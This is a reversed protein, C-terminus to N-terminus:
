PFDIVYNKLYGRKILDAIQEKLQFCDETNHGHDRHFECYKNKNRRLPNTKIKTPWKIYEENKIEMLVQAILTNLPPLVLDPWRPLTRPRQDNPRTRTDRYSRKRKVDDKNYSQMTDPEKRKHGGRGRKRRKAEALEEVAIYKETKSQLASQTESVNKSLSDFLPRPCLGEMMAIIVVKDSHDEVESM